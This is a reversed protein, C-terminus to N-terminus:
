ATSPRSRLGAVAGAAAFLGIAAIGRVVPEDPLRFVVVYCAVNGAAVTLLWAPLRLVSGVVLGAGVTSALLVPAAVMVTLLINELLEEDSSELWAGLLLWGAVAVSVEAVGVVAGKVAGAVAGDVGM